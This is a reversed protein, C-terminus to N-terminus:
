DITTIENETETAQPNQTMFAVTEKYFVGTNAHNTSQSKNIEIHNIFIERV